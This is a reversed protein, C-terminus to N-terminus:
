SPYLAQPSVNESHLIYLRRRTLFDDFELEGGCDQDILLNAFETRGSQLATLLASQLMDNQNQLASFM